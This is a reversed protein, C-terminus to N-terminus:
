GESRRLYVFGSLSAALIVLVLALHSSVPLAEVIVLTFAVNVSGTDDTVTVTYVGADDMTVNELVLENGEEDEIEVGDKSWFYSVDGIGDDEVTLTVTDGIVVMGPGSINASMEGPVISVADLTYSTDGGPAYSNHFSLTPEAGYEAETYFFPISIHHYTSQHQFRTEPLLEEGGLTVRVDMMDPREATGSRVNLYFSLEYREGDQLGQIDQSVSAGDTGTNKQVFLVQNGDPANLGSIFWPDGSRNIGWRGDGAHSWGTIETQEEPFYGVEGPFDDAEFSWNEVLNQASAVMSLGLMLVLMVAGTRLYSHKM